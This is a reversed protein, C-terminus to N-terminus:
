IRTPNDTSFAGVIVHGHRKLPHLLSGLAHDAGCLPYTYAVLGINKELSLMQILGHWVVDGDLDVGRLLEHPVLNM